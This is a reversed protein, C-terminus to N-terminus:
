HSPLESLLRLIGERDAQELISPILGESEAKSSEIINKRVSTVSGSTVSFSTLGLGVLLETLALESAMSGCMGVEIGSAKAGDITMKILRIVSPDFYSYLDAIKDNMRDVAVTYQILDNTGISFFDVEEALKDAMIAAAPIEIMIGVPIRENFPIGKESLELKCEEIIEKARRIEGCTAIMPLMIKLHGFASARLIARLQDKFLDVRDLCIRIARYGLFPNDEKELNLYSVEKDGGIDLTRITVPRDVMVEAIQKYFNFQKEESPASNTEMFLFETRLLGVGEAGADRVAKADEVSSINGFVKLAVGDSTITPKEKYNNLILQLEKEREIESDWKSIIESSPDIHFSGSLGDMAISQANTLSSLLDRVGVIAPVQITRAIIATHSTVGGLETIFGKVFEKNIQSTQSPTLDKAVLIVEETLDKLNAFPRGLIVSLFRATIDKIDLAREKFYDDELAEFQAMYKLGASKVAFALSYKEKQIFKIIEKKFSPDAALMTHAEFIERQEKLTSVSSIEELAKVVESTVEELKSIDKDVDTSKSESVSDLLDELVLIKGYAFGPSASRGIM